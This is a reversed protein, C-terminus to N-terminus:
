SHLLAIGLRLHRDKAKFSLKRNLTWSFSAFLFGLLTTCVPLVERAGSDIQVLEGGIYESRLQASWVCNIFTCEESEALAGTQLWSVLHSPARHGCRDSALNRDRRVGKRPLPQAARQNLLVRVYTTAESLAPTKGLSLM